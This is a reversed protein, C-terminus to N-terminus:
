VPDGNAYAPDGRRRRSAVLTAVGLAFLAMTGPEPVVQAGYIGDIANMDVGLYSLDGSQTMDYPQASPAPIAAPNLNSALVIPGRYYWDNAEINNDQFVRAYIYGGAPQSGGDNFSSNYTKVSYEDFNGSIGDETLIFDALWEDDGTVNHMTVSSADDINSDLSWILQLLASNGTGDGLFGATPTGQWVFGGSSFWNVYVNASAVSAVAMIGVVLLAKKM